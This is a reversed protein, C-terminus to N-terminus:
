EGNEGTTEDSVEEGRDGLELEEDSPEEPEAKEGPEILKPSFESKKLPWFRPRRGDFHVHRTSGSRLSRDDLEVRIADLTIDNDECVRRIEENHVLIEDAQEAEEISDAEILIGNGRQLCDRPSLWAESTAIRDRLQDVASKRPGVSDTRVVLRENFMRGIFDEWDNVDGYFAVAKDFESSYTRRVETPSWFADTDVVFSGFGFVFRFRIESETEGSNLKELRKLELDMTEILEPREDNSQESDVVAEKIQEEADRKKLFTRKALSEVAQQRITPDPNLEAIESVFDRIIQITEGQSRPDDSDLDDLSDHFRINAETFQQIDTGNNPNKEGSM